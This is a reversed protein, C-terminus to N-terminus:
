YLKLDLKSSWSGEPILLYGDGLLLVWSQYELGHLELEVCRSVTFGQEGVEIAEGLVIARNVFIGVFKGSQCSLDIGMHWHLLKQSTEQIAQGWSQARLDDEELGLIEISCDM